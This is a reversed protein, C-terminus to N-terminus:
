YSRLSRYLHQINYYDPAIWTLFSIRRLTFTNHTVCQCAREWKRCGRTYNQRGLKRPIRIHSSLAASPSSSHRFPTCHVDDSHMEPYPFENNFPGRSRSQSPLPKMLIPALSPARARVDHWLIPSFILLAFPPYQSLSLSLSIPLSLSSSNSTM